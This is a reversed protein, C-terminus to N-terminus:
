VDRIQELANRIGYASTSLTLYYEEGDGRLFYDETENDRVETGIRNYGADRIKSRILAFITSAEERSQAYYNEGHAIQPDFVHIIFLM